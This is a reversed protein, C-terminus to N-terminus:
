RADVLAVLADIEAQLSAVQAVLKKPKNEIANLTKIQAELNSIHTFIQDDSVDKAPQGYVYTITEIAKTPTANAMINKRLPNLFLYYAHMQEHQACLNPDIKEHVAYGAALAPSSGVMRVEEQTKLGYPCLDYRENFYAELETAQIMTPRRIDADRCFEQIVTRRQVGISSGSKDDRMNFNKCKHYTDHFSRDSELTLKIEDMDM